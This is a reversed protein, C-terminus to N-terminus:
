AGVAGAHTLRAVPGSAAAATSPSSCRRGLAPRAGRQRVALPRPSRTRAGAHEAMGAPKRCTRTGEFRGARAGHLLGKWYCRVAGGPQNAPVRDRDAPSRHQCLQEAAFGGDHVRRVRAVAAGPAGAVTRGDFAREETVRSDHAGVGTDSRLFGCGWVQELARRGFNHRRTTCLWQKPEAVIRVRHGGGWVCVCACVCM